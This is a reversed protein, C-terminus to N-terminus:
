DKKKEQDEEEEEEEGEQEEEEGLNWAVQRASATSGWRAWAFCRFTPSSCCCSAERVRSEPLRSLLGTGLLSSCACASSSSSTAASHTKQPSTIILFMSLGKMSSWSKSLTM